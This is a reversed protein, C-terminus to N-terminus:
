TQSYSSLRGSMVIQRWSYVICCIDCIYDKLPELRMNDSYTERNTPTELQKPPTTSTLTIPAHTVTTKLHMVGLDKLPQHSQLQFHHHKLDRKHVNNLSFQAPITTPSDPSSTPSPASSKLPTCSFMVKSLGKPHSRLPM